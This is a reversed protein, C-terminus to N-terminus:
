RKNFSIISISHPFSPFYFRHSIYSGELTTATEEFTIKNLTAEGAYVIPLDM